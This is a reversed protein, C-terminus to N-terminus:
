YPQMVYPISKKTKAKGKDAGKNEKLLNLFEKVNKIEKPQTVYVTGNRKHYNLIIL